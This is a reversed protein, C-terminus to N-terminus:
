GAGRVELGSDGGVLVVPAFGGGGRGVGEVGDLGEGVEGGGGAGVAEEGAEGGVGADKGGHVGVVEADAEEGFHVGGLVGGVFRARQAEVAVAPFDDLQAQARIRIIPIPVIFNDPLRQTMLQRM